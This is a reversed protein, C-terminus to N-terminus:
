AQENPDGEDKGGSNMSNQPYLYPALKELTSSHVGARIGRQVRRIVNLNVGSAKSLRYASWGSHELFSEIDTKLNM